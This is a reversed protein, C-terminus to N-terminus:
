TAGEGLDCKKRPGKPHSKHCTESYSANGSKKEIRNEEVKRNQSAGSKTMFLATVVSGQKSGEM